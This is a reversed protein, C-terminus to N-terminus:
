PARRGTTKAPRVIREDMTYSEGNGIYVFKGSRKPYQIVVKFVPFRIKDFDKPAYVVLKKDLYTVRVQVPDREDKKLAARFDEVDVLVQNPSLKKPDVAKSKTAM